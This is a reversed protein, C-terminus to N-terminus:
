MVMGGDVALVQGTIYRAAPGALFVVANAIDEPQGFNGM